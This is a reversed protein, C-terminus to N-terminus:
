AVFNLQLFLQNEVSEDFLILQTLFCFEAVFFLQIEVEKILLCFQIPPMTKKSPRINIRQELNSVM